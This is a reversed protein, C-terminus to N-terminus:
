GADAAAAGSVEEGAPEGVREAVEDELWRYILALNIGSLPGIRGPPFPVSVVADPSRWSQDIHAEAEPAQSAESPDRAYSTILRAGTGRIPGAYDRYASSMGRYVLWVLVDGPKVNTALNEEFNGRAEFPQMATRRDQFLEHGLIHTITAVRVARGADLQRAIVDAAHEVQRRVHPGDMSRLMADVEALYERALRGPPVPTDCDGLVARNGRQIRSDYADGSALMITVLVAPHKGRRTLAASYECVWLWSNLANAIANDAAEASGGTAAHNDILHDVELDEPMGARSAFMVILSGKARCAEIAPRITELDAEWSRVSLLAVDNPTMADPRDSPSLANALGGARNILEDAFGPQEDYPVNILADSGTATREAAEDAAREIPGLDRRIAALRTEFAALARPLERPAPRQSQREARRCGPLVCLLVLLILALRHTHM